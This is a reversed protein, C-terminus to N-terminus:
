RGPWVGKAMKETVANAGKVIKEAEERTTDPTFVLEGNGIRGTIRPAAIWRVEPWSAYIVLRKGANRASINELVRAGHDNFVLRIGYGGEIDVVSANAIDYNNLIDTTDIHIYVPNARYVPVDSQDSKNDAVRELHIKIIAEDKKKKQSTTGCASFLSLLALACFIANINRRWSKM